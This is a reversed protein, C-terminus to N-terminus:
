EYDVGRKNIKNEEKENIYKSIEKPTMDMVKKYEEFTLDMIRKDFLKEKYEKLPGEIFDKSIQGIIENHNKIYQKLNDDYYNM